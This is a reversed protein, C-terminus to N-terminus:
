NAARLSCDYSDTTRVLLWWYAPTVVCFLFILVAAINEEVSHFFMATFLLARLSFLIIFIATILSFAYGAVNGSQIIHAIELSVVVIYQVCYLVIHDSFDFTEKCRSLNIDNTQSYLV